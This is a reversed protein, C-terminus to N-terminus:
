ACQKESVLSRLRELGRHYHNRVKGITQGTKDAIEYFSCGEFIAEDSSNTPLNPTLVSLSFGEADQCHLNLTERAQM